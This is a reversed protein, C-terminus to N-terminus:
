FEIYEGQEIFLTRVGKEAVPNLDQATIGSSSLVEVRKLTQPASTFINPGTAHCYELRLSLLYEPLTSLSDATLNQADHLTLARLSKPLSAFFEADAAQYSITLSKLIQSFQIDMAKGKTIRPCHLLTLRELTLPLHELTNWGIDEQNILELTKVTFPIWKLHEATFIPSANISISRLNEVPHRRIFDFPTITGIIPNSSVSNYGFGTLKRSNFLINWYEPHLSLGAELVLYTIFKYNGFVEVAQDVTNGNIYFPRHAWAEQAAMIIFQEITDSSKYIALDLLTQDSITHTHHGFQDPQTLGFIHSLPVYHPNEPTRGISVETENPTLRIFPHISSLTAEITSKSTINQAIFARGSDEDNPSLDTLGANLPFIYLALLASFLASKKM